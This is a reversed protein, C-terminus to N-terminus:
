HRRVPLRQTQRNEATRARGDSVIRESTNAVVTHIDDQRVQPVRFRRREGRETESRVRVHRDRRDFLKGARGASGDRRRNADPVEPREEDARRRVTRDSRVDAETQRVHVRAVTQEQNDAVASQGHLVFQEVVPQRLLGLLRRPGLLVLLRQDARQQDAGPRPGDPVADEDPVTRRVQPRGARLLDEPVLGGSSRIGARGDPLQRVVPRAARVAREHKEMQRVDVRLFLVDGRTRDSVVRRRGDVM